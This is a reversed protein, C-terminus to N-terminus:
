QYFLSSDLLGCFALVRLFTLRNRVLPAYRIYSYAETSSLGIEEPTTKAGALLLLKRLQDDEPIEKIIEGIDQWRSVVTDGIDELVRDNSNENEIHERLAGFVRGVTEDDYIHYRGMHERIVAADYGSFMHYIKSIMIAAIGVKEGHLANNEGMVGMETLHSFHHEAGSAPRSNGVYQMAIGSMILGYMLAEYSQISGSQIGPLSGTVAELAEQMISVVEDSYYEGTLLTAIRWDATSTYKGLMDGIGSRALRVPARSIIDLDAFVADPAVGPITKKYGYWTMASVSSCFGDVSAATPCSIFPKGIEHACWRVIDHITGSGFAILVGPDKMQGMVLAVAEEDAHLADAPLVISETFGLNYGKLIGVTNSDCVVVKKVAAYRLSLEKELEDMAGQAIVIQRTLISGETKGGFRKLIEESTLLM